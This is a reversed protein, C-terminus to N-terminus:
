RTSRQWPTSINQQVPCTSVTQKNDLILDAGCISMSRSMVSSSTVFASVLAVQRLLPFHAKLKFFQCMFVISFRLFYISVIYGFCKNIGNSREHIESVIANLMLTDSM